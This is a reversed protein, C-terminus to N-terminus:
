QFVKQVMPEACFQQQAAEPTLNVSALGGADMVSCNVSGIGGTDDPVAEVQTSVIPRLAAGDFRYFDVNWAAASSRASATVYGSETRAIEVASLQGARTMHRSSGTARWIAWTTNVNGTSLPIMLEDRGDGDIDELKPASPTSDMGEEITQLAEQEPGIVRVQVGNPQGPEPKPYRVEFVLAASDKSQIACEPHTWGADGANTAELKACAPLVSQKADQRACAGLSLSAAALAAILGRRVM